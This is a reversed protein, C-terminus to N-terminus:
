CTTRARLLVARALLNPGTSTSGYTIRLGTSADHRSCHVAVAFTPKPSLWHKTWAYGALNAPPKGNAAASPSGHTMTLTTTMLPSSCALSTKATVASLWCPANGCPPPLCTSGCWRAPNLRGTWTLHMSFVARFTLPPSCKPAHPAVITSPPPIAWASM